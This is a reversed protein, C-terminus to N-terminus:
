YNQVDTFTVKSTGSNGSALVTGDPGFALCTIMDSGPEGVRITEVVPQRSAIDWIEIISSSGFALWNGDPSFDLSSIAPMFYESPDYLLSYNNSLLDILVIEGTDDGAALISGDDNFAISEVRYGLNPAFERITQWSTTNWIIIRGDDGASALTDGSPSFALSNISGSHGVISMFLNPQRVVDWILIIGDYGGSVLLQGDPSYAMTNTEYPVNSHNDERILEGDPQQDIVNWLVITYEGGSTLRTGDPSFALSNVPSIISEGLTLHSQNIMTTGLTQQSKTDWLIIRGGYSGSALIEGNPSFALSSVPDPRLLEAEEKTVCVAIDLLESRLVFGSDTKIELYIDGQLYNIPDSLGLDIQFRSPPDNERVTYKSEPIDTVLIPELSTSDNFWDLEWWQDVIVNYRKEIELEGAFRGAFVNDPILAVSTIIIDRDSNNNVAIDLTSAKLIEMGCDGQENVTVVMTIESPKQTPTTTPLPTSTPTVTITPTLTMTPTPTSTGIFAVIVFDRSTKFVLLAFSIIIIMGLGVLAYPRLNKYRYLSRGPFIPSDTTYFSVYALIVLLSVFILIGLITFGLYYDGRILRVFSILATAIGLISLVSQGLHNKVWELLISIKKVQFGEL